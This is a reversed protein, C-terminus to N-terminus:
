STEELIKNNCEIFDHKHHKLLNITIVVVTTGVEGALFRRNPLEPM